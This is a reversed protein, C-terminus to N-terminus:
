VWCMWTGVRPTASNMLANLKGLQPRQSFAAGANSDPTGTMMLGAVAVAQNVWRMTLSTTSAPTSGKPANDTMQPEDAPRMSWSCANSTTLKVPEASVPLIMRLWRATVSSDTRQLM